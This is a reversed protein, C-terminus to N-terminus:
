ACVRLDRVLSNHLIEILPTDDACSSNQYAKLKEQAEQNSNTKTALMQELSDFEKYTLASPIDEGNATAVFNLVAEKASNYNSLSEKFPSATEEQTEDSLRVLPTFSKLLSEGVWNDHDALLGGTSLVGDSNQKNIWEAKVKIDSHTAIPCALIAEAATKHKKYATIEMEDLKASARTGGAEMRDFEVKITKHSEFAVLWANILNAIEPKSTNSTSTNQITM